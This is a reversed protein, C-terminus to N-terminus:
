CGHATDGVTCVQYATFGYTPNSSPLVGHLWMGIGPQGTAWTSDTTTTLQNWTVGDGGNAVAYQIYSTITTGVIKARVKDGTKYATFSVSSLVTFDGTVTQGVGRVHAGDWRVIQAHSGDTAFNCEYVQAFDSGDTVRLLIEIEHSTTTDMAPDKYVTAIADVDPGFGSLYGYSDNFNEPVTSGAQTGIVRNPSTTTALFANANTTHHWAGGESIPNEPATSFSTSFFPLSSVPPAAQAQFPAWAAELGQSPLLLILAAAAVAALKRLLRKM